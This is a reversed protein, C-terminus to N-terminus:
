NGLPAWAGLPDNPGTCLSRVSQSSIANEPDRGQLYVYNRNREGNDDTLTYWMTAILEYDEPSYNTM